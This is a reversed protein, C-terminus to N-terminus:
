GMQLTTPCEGNALKKARDVLQAEMSQRDVMIVFDENKIGEVTFRALEDLDQIHPDVGMTKMLDMFAEFTMESGEPAEQTREFEAPRNRKTTWIGTNLIGGSPYFIAAKLKTERGVLQAHLCETLISVSAKSSAYIIQDALPHIGGDGSSTNMVFGEEGGEIMRPVFSQIGHMVGQVNVGLVWAWDSPETDWANLNPTGVGANNCLIHCTGFKAYVADAFNNMAEPSRVDCVFSLIEGGNAGLETSAEDLASQEVDGIAVKMGEDLFARVLAKGIGSAGGTVVAVKGSLDQM